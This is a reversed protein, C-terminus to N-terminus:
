TGELPVIGPYLTDLEDEDWARGSPGGNDEPVPHDPYADYIDTGTAAEYVESAVYSLLEAEDTEETDTLRGDGVAAPNGRVTDFYELGQAVIWSRFYLFGDDSCGQLLVYAAGWLEYSYIEDTHKTFDADFKVVQELPLRSLIRELEEAQVATSGGANKRSEDIIAWFGTPQESEASPTAPAQTPPVAQASAGHGADQQGCAALLLSAAAVLLIARAGRVM